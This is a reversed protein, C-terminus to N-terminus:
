RTGLISDVASNAVPEGSAAPTADKAVPDGNNLGNKLEYSNFAVKSSSVPIKTSEWFPNNNIFRKRFVGYHSAKSRRVLLLRFTDNLKDGLTNVKAVFQSTLNKYIRNIMGETQLAAQFATVDSTDIGEYPNLRAEDTTLYGQLLHELQDRLAGLDIAIDKVDRKEGQFELSPPFLMINVGSGDTVGGVNNLLDDISQKVGDQEFSVELTGKENILAKTLRVPENIGVRISM